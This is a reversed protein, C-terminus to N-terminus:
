ASFRKSFDRRHLALRHNEKFMLALSANFALYFTTDIFHHLSEVEPAWSQKNAV